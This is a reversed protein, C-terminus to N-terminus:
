SRISSDVHFCFCDRVLEQVHFYNRCYIDTQSANLIWSCSETRWFDEEVSIQQGQREKGTAHKEDKHTGAAMKDAKKKKEDKM